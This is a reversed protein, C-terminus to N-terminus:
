GLRRVLYLDGRRLGRDSWADRFHEVHFMDAPFETPVGSQCLFVAGRPMWAAVAPRIKGPLEVARATIVDAFAGSVAAPFEGAVIDVDKLGLAGVVKRLFGVKKVSREVLTVRLEPLAVKLPIAPYGGGSGIDLLHGAALGLAQVVPVLSVADPLHTTELQALDGTSVLGAVTNWSRILEVHRAWRAPADAPVALGQEQLFAM